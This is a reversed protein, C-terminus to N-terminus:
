MANRARGVHPSANPNISTHEILLTKGTGSAGSGFADGESLIERVIERAIPGRKLKFNLYPGAPTVSVVTPGFDVHKAIDAAFQPPKMNVKKAAVFTRLAVDGVDLKPPPAFDLDEPLLSEYAALIPDALTKFPNM